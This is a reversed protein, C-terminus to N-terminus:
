EPYRKKRKVTSGESDEEVSDLSDFYESDYSDADSDNVANVGIGAKSDRDWTQFWTNIDDNTERLVDKEKAVFMDEEEGDTLEIDEEEEEEEEDRQKRPRGPPWKRPQQPPPQLAPEQLTRQV